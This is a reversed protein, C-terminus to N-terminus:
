IRFIQERREDLLWKKMETILIFTLTIFNLKIEFKVECVIFGFNTQNKM